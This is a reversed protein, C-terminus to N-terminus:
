STLLQIIPAVTSGWMVVIAHAESSDCALSYFLSSALLIISPHSPIADFYSESLTGDRLAAASVLCGQLSDSLTIRGRNHTFRLLDGFNDQKLRYAWM